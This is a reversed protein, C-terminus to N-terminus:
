WQALAGRQQVSDVTAIVILAVKDCAARTNKLISTTEVHRLPSSMLDTAFISGQVTDSNGKTLRCNSLALGNMCGDIWGDM